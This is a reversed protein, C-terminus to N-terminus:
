KRYRARVKRQDWVERQVFESKKKKRGAEAEKLQVQYELTCMKEQSKSKNDQEQKPFKTTIVDMHLLKQKWKFPNSCHDKYFAMAQCLRPTVSNLNINIVHHETLKAHGKLRDIKNLYKQVAGTHKVGRIEKFARELQYNASYYKRM